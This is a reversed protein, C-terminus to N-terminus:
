IVSGHGCTKWGFGHITLYGGWPAGVHDTGLPAAVAALHENPRCSAFSAEYGVDRHREGAIRQELRWDLDDEDVAPQRRDRAVGGCLAQAGSPATQNASNAALL